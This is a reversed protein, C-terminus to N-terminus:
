KKWPQRALTVGCVVRAGGTIRLSEAVANLTLGATFVDDFVLVCKGRTRAPDPIELAEALEGTAIGRKDRWTKGLMPQTDKTKVVAAPRALDFPWRGESEQNARQLILRIHDWGRRAGAGTYTPSAVILDFRGFMKKLRNLFGALVRGFIIAWGRKGQYKYANVADELVGSRMAIAYNWRFARDDWICIPNRCEEEDALPLDCVECRHRRLPEMTQRACAFCIAPTGTELYACRACRGFGLPEDPLRSLDVM